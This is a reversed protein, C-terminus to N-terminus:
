YDWDNHFQNFTRPQTKYTNSEPVSMEPKGPNIPTSACATFFVMMMLVLIGSTIKM